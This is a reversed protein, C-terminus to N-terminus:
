RAAGRETRRAFLQLYLELYQEATRTASFNAQVEAYAAAAFAARESPNRLLRLIAEALAHPDSHPVLLGARGHHLVTPVEGVATAVVPLRSAMGELLAMPLGEQVSSQVLIGFSAYVEPMDKRQGYFSVAPRLGLQDVLEELKPREPGDGVLAFRTRPFEALVMAAARLFFSHGKEPALRAVVGVTVASTGSADRSSAAARAFTELDIGNSICRIRDANTGSRLLRDRVEASVAIVGDFSRLVRRDVAGYIRLFLDTDYWTHCTSVLPLGRRRLALDTYIDAKYGHAHAVEASTDHVLRRIRAPVRRDVQGRCEVLHSELGAAQAAQHLQLNPRASNSFVGVISRHGSRAMAQSVNLIVAEAGYMGGSSILHLVTM